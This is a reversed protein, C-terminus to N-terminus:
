GAEGYLEPHESLCFYTTRYWRDCFTACVEGRPRGECQYVARADLMRRGQLLELAIQACSLSPRLSSFSENQTEPFEGEEALVAALTDPFEPSAVRNLVIEGTFFRMEDDYRENGARLELYRALLLLEDFSIRREGSGQAALSENRAEEALRGAELDGRTAARLMMALYDPEPEQVWACGSLFGVISLMILAFLLKKM